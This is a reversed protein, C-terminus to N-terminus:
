LAVVIAARAVPPRSASSRGRSRIRCGYTVLITSSCATPHLRPRRFHPRFDPLCNCCPLTAYVEPANSLNGNLIKLIRGNGFDAAFLNGNANFALGLLPAGIPATRQLEQAGPGLKVIFSLDPAFAFTSVYIRGAADAAIGRSVQSRPRPHRLPNGARDTNWLRSDRTGNERPNRSGVVRGNACLNNTADHSKEKTRPTLEDNKLNPWKDAVCLSPVKYGRALPM